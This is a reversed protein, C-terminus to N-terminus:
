RGPEDLTPLPEAMRQQWHDLERLARRVRGPHQDATNVLEGGASHLDFLEFAEQKDPTAPYHIFHWRADRRFFALRRRSAPKEGSAIQRLHEVDIKSRVAEDFSGYLTRPSAIGGSAVAGRLDAGPRGPPPEVGAYGLLTPFLDLTSVLPDIRAGAPVRGPWRLVIPTRFGLDHMSRKGRPGGMIQPYDFDSPSDWGNDSVFVVLTRDLHGLRQLRDMLEGVRDDLRSVNALYARTSPALAPQGDYRAVIEPPADFPKHPLKPALWLLYPADGVRELFEWVPEMTERGIAHGARGGSQRELARGELPPMKTGGTFGAQRATGEWHKGAQFSQYGAAALLRPLTEYHLIANPDTRVLGQRRLQANRRAVQLPQLGTLLTMLSPRCISSTNYGTTFVTGESALRDLHPTHARESGMFGLDPYGLDDAIVLVINPREVDAAPSCAGSLSGALLALGALGWNLAHRARGPHSM